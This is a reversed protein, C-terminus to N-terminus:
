NPKFRYRLCSKSFWPFSLDWLFAAGLRLLLLPFWPAGIGKIVATEVFLNHSILLM